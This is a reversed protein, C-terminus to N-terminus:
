DDTNLLDKPIIGAVPLKEPEIEENQWKEILSCLFQIREFHKEPIRNKQISTRSGALFRSLEAWNILDEPQSM